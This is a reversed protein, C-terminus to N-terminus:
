DLWIPLEAYEPVYEEIVTAPPCRVGQMVKRILALAQARDSVVVDIGCYEVTTGEGLQSGGGTISGLESEELAIELPAEFREERELPQIDGPIRVYFFHNGESAAEEAFEQMVARRGDDEWDTTM